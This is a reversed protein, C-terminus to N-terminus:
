TDLSIDDWDDEEAILWELGKRRVCVVEANLQGINTKVNLRKEVTAWHYRYFLDIMDLIQEIDRLKCASKFGEYTPYNMILATLKSVDCIDYPYELDGDEIFGLAWLLSLLAEFNWSVHVADEGSFDNDFIKKEFYSLRNQVNYRHLFEEFFEKSEAYDKPNDTDCSLHSAAFCALVRQCIQDLSKPTVESSEEVLPLEELYEINREKLKEISKERREQANM